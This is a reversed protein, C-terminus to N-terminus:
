LFCVVPQLLFLGRPQLEFILRLFGFVLPQFIVPRSIGAHVM